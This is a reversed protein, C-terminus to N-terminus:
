EDQIDNASLDLEVCRQYAEEIQLYVENKDDYRLGKRQVVPVLRGVGATIEEDTRCLAFAAHCNAAKNFAEAFDRLDIVKKRVAEKSVQSFSFSFMKYAKNLSVINHYVDRIRFREEKVNKDRSAMLDAYDWIAVDPVFDEENALYDLQAEAENVGHLFSSFSSIRIDGGMKKLFELISEYIQQLTTNNRIISDLHKVEKDTCYIMRQMLREYLETAGNEYDALFIKLGSSLYGYALNIGLGTKFGKPGGMLIILQPSYFGGASTLDNLGQFCTPHIKPMVITEPKDYLFSIPKEIATSTDLNFIRRMENFTKEMNFEPADELGSLSPAVNSLLDYTLKQQVLKVATNHYMDLGSDIPEFADIINQELIPFLEDPVNKQERLLQMLSIKSPMSGKKLRKRYLKLLDLILQQDALDFTSLPVSEVISFGRPDQAFFRLLQTQFNETLM